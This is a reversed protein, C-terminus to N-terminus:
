PFRNSSFDQFTGDPKRVVILCEVNDLGNVIALSKEPAMVMLATALGDAFTCNDAVVSASVVGTDVPYGTTPNIIHSYSRNDITVFNRYDGSTALAKDRLKITRYLTSQTSGPEPRSIGVTWAMNGPKTGRTVVEGGIEVIFRSFGSGQLMLAVADVGFGKAISGLDLTVSDSKKSLIKGQIDIRNFGTQSLLAKVREPDPMKTIAAKTGFGWLDVLPKLTGDWAGNTLLYLRSGQELVQAFDPSVTFPTHASTANFRSIESTPLFMSMSQNVMALRADIRQKLQVEDIISDAMVTIAYTTGMTKGMLTHKKLAEAQTLTDQVLLFLTAILVSYFLIKKSYKM